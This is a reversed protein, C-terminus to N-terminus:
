LKAFVGRKKMAIVIIFGLISGPISSAWFIITYIQWQATLGLWAWPGAPIAGAGILPAVVLASLLAGIATGIPECLAALSTRRIYWFVFGVVFAGPLGGPISFISGIGLSMRILGTSLAAFVAYGPGLMIGLIVNIMHQSPLIKTPGVPISGPYVSLIVGLAIFISLISVRKSRSIGKNMWEMSSSSAMIKKYFPFTFLLVQKCNVKFM